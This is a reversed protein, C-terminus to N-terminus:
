KNTCRTVHLTGDSVAFLSLSDIDIELSSKRVRSGLDISTEYRYIDNGYKGEMKSLKTEMAPRSSTEAKEGDIFLDGDILSFNVVHVDNGDDISCVMEKMGDSIKQNFPQAFTQNASLFILFVLIKEIKKM